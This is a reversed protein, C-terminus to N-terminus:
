VCGSISKICSGVVAAYSKNFLTKSSVLAKLDVVDVLSCGDEVVVTAHRGSRM